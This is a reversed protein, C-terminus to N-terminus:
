VTDSLHDRERRGRRHRCRTPLHALACLHQEIFKTDVGPVDIQRLYHDTGAATEIWLVTAVIKDWVEELDLAQLPRELVGEAPAPSAARTRELLAM